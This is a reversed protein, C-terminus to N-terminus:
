KVAKRIRILDDIADGLLFYADNLSKIVDPKLGKFQGSRIRSRAKDIKNQAITALDLITNDCSM